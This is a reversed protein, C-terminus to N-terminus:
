LLQQQEVNGVCPEFQFHMRSQEDYMPSPVELDNQLIYDECKVVPSRPEHLEPIYLDNIDINNTLEEGTMFGEDEATFSNRSTLNNNPYLGLPSSSISREQPNYVQQTAPKSLPLHTLRYTSSLQRPSEFNTPQAPTGVGIYRPPEGKHSSTGLANTYSQSYRLEKIAERVLVQVDEKLDCPNLKRPARRSKVVTRVQRQLYRRHNINRKFTTPKMLACKVADSAVDMFELLSQPSPEQVHCKMETKFRTRQPSLLDQM